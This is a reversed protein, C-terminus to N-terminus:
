LSQRVQKMLSKMIAKVTPTVFRSNARYSAIIQDTHADRFELFAQDAIWGAIPDFRVAGISFLAIIDAQEKKPVVAFGMAGLEFAVDQAALLAQSSGSMVHEADIGSTVAGGLVTNPQVTASGFASGVNATEVSIAGSVTSLIVCVKSPPRLSSRGSLTYSKITAGCGALVIGASATLFFSITRRTKM